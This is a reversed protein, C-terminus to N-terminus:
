VAPKAQPLLTMRAKRFAQPQRATAAGFVAWQGPNTAALIGPLVSSAGTAESTSWAAFTRGAAAEGEVPNWVLLNEVEAETLEVGSGEILATIGRAFASGSFLSAIALVDIGGDFVRRLTVDERAEEAAGSSLGTDRGRETLAQDVMSQWQDVTQTNGNGGFFGVHDPHNHQHSAWRAAVDFTSTAGRIEGMVHFVTQEEPASLGLSDFLFALAEDDTRTSEGSIPTTSLLPDIFTGTRDRGLRDDFEVTELAPAFADYIVGFAQAVRVEASAGSVIAGNEDYVQVRTNEYVSLATTGWFLKVANVDTM